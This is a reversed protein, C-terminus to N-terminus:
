VGYIVAEAMKIARVNAKVDHVRIYKVGAKVALVSTALTGELREEIPLKLANGIVSKNSVGLLVPYGLKCLEDLERICRLNDEFTKNFGVGPDLIIKSKDVGCRHYDEVDQKLDAILDNYGAKNHMLIYDVQAKAVVKAMQANFGDIRVDNIIDAGALVANQAVQAKYTDVSIKTDFRSKIGEIVPIIREMEEEAPVREFNPRTSEGGVDIIDAGDEIMKEVAFMVSDLSLIGNRSYKGGDSFSDPTVNLIGMVSTKMDSVM